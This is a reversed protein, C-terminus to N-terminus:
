MAYTSAAQGFDTTEIVYFHLKIIIKVKEREVICYWFLRVLKKYIGPSFREIELKRAEGGRRWLQHGANTNM